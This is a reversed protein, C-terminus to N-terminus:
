KTGVIKNNFFLAETPSRLQLLTCVSFDMKYAFQGISRFYLVQGDLQDTESIQRVSGDLQDM